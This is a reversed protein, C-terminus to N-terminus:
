IRDRARGRGARAATCPRSTMASQSNILNSFPSSQNPPRIRIRSRGSVSRTGIPQPPGCCPARSADSALFRAPLRLERAARPAHFQTVPIAPRDLQLARRRLRRRRLPRAAVSVTASALEADPRRAMDCRPWRARQKRGSLRRALNHRADGQLAPLALALDRRGVANASPAERRAAEASHLENPQMARARMARRALM